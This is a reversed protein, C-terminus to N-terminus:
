RGGSRTARHATEFTTCSALVSMILGLAVLACVAITMVGQHPLYRSPDSAGAVAAARDIPLWWAAAAIATGLLALAGILLVVSTASPREVSTPFSDADASGTM